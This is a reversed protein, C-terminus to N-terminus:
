APTVGFVLTKDSHDPVYFNAVIRKTGDPLTNPSFTGRVDATTATSAATTALATVLTLTTEPIGDVFVGMIDGKDGLRVPAGFKVGAAVTATGINVLNASTASAVISVLTKFAKQTYVSTASGVIAETLTEGYADTGTLTFTQSLNAGTASSIAIGRPVDATYIGGSMLTGTASIGTTSLAQAVVIGNSVGAAAAGLDYVYSHTLELGRRGDPSYRGYHVDGIYIKDAHTVTHRTPM